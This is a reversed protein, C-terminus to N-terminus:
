AEAKAIEVELNALVRGVGVHTTKLMSILADAEKEHMEKSKKGTDPTSFQELGVCTNLLLLDILGIAKVLLVDPSNFIPFRSLQITIRRMEAIEFVFVRNTLKKEANKITISVIKEASQVVGRLGVLKAVRLKEEKEAEKRRVYDAQYWAVGVAVFIAVVSGVAQVWAAQDELDTWWLKFDPWYFDVVLWLAFAFTMWM